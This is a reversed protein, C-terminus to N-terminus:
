LDQLSGSAEIMLATLNLEELIRNSITTFIQIHDSSAVLVLRDNIFFCPDRYDSRAILIGSEMPNETIVSRGLGSLPNAQLNKTRGLLKNAKPDGVYNFSAIKNMKPLKLWIERLVRTFQDCSECNIGYLKNDLHDAQHEM